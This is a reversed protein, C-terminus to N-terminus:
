QLAIIKILKTQIEKYKEGLGDPVVGWSKTLWLAFYSNEVGSSKKKKAIEDGLQM